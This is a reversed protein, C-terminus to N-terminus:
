ATIGCGAMAAPLYARPLIVLMKAASFELTIPASRPGLAANSTGVMGDPAFSIKDIPWKLGTSTGSVRGMPFLSVRTGRPLALTLKLPALFMVDRAGLLFCRLDPRRTLGSLVALGHDQRSGVFGLALVFPAHIASIAKDFDTTDQNPNHYIRNAYLRRAAPSISDMDGVVALPAQAGFRMLHDAGSDAAVVYPARMLATNYDRLAVAGGGVLTVGQSTKIKLGKESFQVSM